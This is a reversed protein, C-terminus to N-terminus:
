ILSSFFVLSGFERSNRHPEKRDFSCEIKFQCSLDFCKSNIKKDVPRHSYCHMCAHMITCGKNNKRKNKESIPPFVIFYIVRIIKGGCFLLLPQSINALKACGKLRSQCSNRLSRLVHLVFYIVVFNTYLPSHVIHEPCWLNEAVFM